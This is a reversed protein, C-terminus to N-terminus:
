FVQHAGAIRRDTPENKGASRERKLTNDNQFDITVESTDKNFTYERYVLEQQNATEELYMLGGGGCYWSESDSDSRITGSLTISDVSHISRPILYDGDVNQEMESLLLTETQYDYSKAAQLIMADANSSNARFLMQILLNMVLLMGWIVAIVIASASFIYKRKLREIEQQM